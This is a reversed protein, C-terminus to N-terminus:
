LSAIQIKFNGGPAQEKQSHTGKAHKSVGGKMRELALRASAFIL